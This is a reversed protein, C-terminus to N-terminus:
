FEFSYNVFPIIPFLSQQNLVFNEEIINGSSDYTTETDSTIYFPNKNNYINYAGISWTRKHKKKQKVFNISLDGRHYSRMRYNNRALVDQPFSPRLFNGTSSSPHLTVYQSNALTVANGTGYVWSASLNIRPGIEYIAVVSLDHRRDYKYPFSEGFNLDDFQRDTFSLTYGLWGSFRGKKKQLFIEIGKSTGNGQTVREQWDNLEFLGSGEKYAVLNSMERYYAEITLDYHKSIKFAYGLAVQWSDQPKVRETTPVWLDTPLGIGEFALLHVFQRMTAFSAKISSGDSLLYRGSLRPQLSLYSKGKVIFGSGHLGANIKLKDNIKYDDEIYVDIEQTIINEQGLTLEFNEDESLQFLDFTGPKFKHQIGSIGFKVFHNPNPVWDFDIKAAYDNIGSLYGVSIEETFGTITNETGYGVKTDLDYNSYTLTFNSFLKPTWIHNWRIASTINGWGINSETFDRVATDIEKSNFYFRDDGAYFSLFIRDKDGIIHNVKANVDYFYYGLNGDEGENEFEKKLFPRALLDIYTRRGSIIFSTKDKVIPGELTLKSAVLGISGAGHIEKMNGEKMNIDLVSSLRGGYRAPYGGKILKVDKIVDSNFVSFFGFLHSVNYVPTGDLLILNQDPSGGRVYLGSQGEGGSQVGPLLQLAKLVDTEGLFAPIKKIQEIPVEMTSMQSEEAINKEAAAVIEIEALSVAPSLEITISTDKQLDIYMIQPEYGIFSINLEHDGSPLTISYFGYVNTVTGEYTKANYINASILKEGSTIDQIYGNITYSRQSFSDSYCCLILTFAIAYLRIM